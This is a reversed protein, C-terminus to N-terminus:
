SIGQDELYRTILVPKPLEDLQRVSYDKANVSHLSPPLAGSRPLNIEVFRAHIVQHSLVHKYEKSIRTRLANLVPVKGPSFVRELIVEVRASRREEHLPFDFLGKWIDKKIRERMRIKNGKRFLFYYFYRKKIKQRPSRAPFVHQLKKQYAFCNKKFICEECLPNKPLCHLAGFEMVAQNHVGPNDLPVFQNALEFFFKKGDPSAMNKDIGFIRSLVRCVNGDVAAVSEGFAISAIAAATYDGIGPLGRLGKYNDPFKGNFNRVVNRACAHLNRARTYYGLGQWLRLVAQPSAKALSKVNPYYQIFRKYYPLGQVVRTQQLIIESLWIKYPDRTNRWPLNRHYKLYWEVIKISFIGRKM